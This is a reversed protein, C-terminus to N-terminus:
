SCWKYAIDKLRDFISLSDAEELTFLKESFLLRNQISIQLQGINEGIKIPIRPTNDLVANLSISNKEEQTLPYVIDNKIGCAISDKNSEKLSLDYYNKGGSALTVLSYSKHAQEMLAKSDEFMPVCNLVVCVVQMGDKTSSGVFCRGAKKTFGTKVGDAGEYTSLLKNKNVIVRDYDRGGYSCTYRKTAVIKSFESDQLAKCSILALDYATTYHNDDHLGHPNVFNSNKAGLGIATKNMLTAFDNVSGATIIALAEACDNGSQLMLGYLLDRISLEEDYQLYISSGEVGVAKSPVKHKADLDATNKIVTLATLIKTTSAMYSIKDMNKSYLVRGSSVEMVAMSSASTSAKASVMVADSGALWVFGIVVVAVLMALFRKYNVFLKRIKIM